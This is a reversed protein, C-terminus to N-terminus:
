HEHDARRRKSRKSVKSKTYHVRYPEMEEWTLHGSSIVSMIALYWTRKLKNPKEWREILSPDINILGWRVKADYCTFLGYKASFFQNL